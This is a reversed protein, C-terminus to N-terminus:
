PSIGSREALAGAALVSGVLCALGALGQVLAPVIAQGLGVRRATRHMRWPLFGISMAAVWGLALVRAAGTGLLGGLLFLGLLPVIWYAVWRKAERATCADALAPQVGVFRGLVARHCALAGLIAAALSAARLATWPAASYPGICLSRSGVTWVAHAAHAGHADFASLTMLARTPEDGTAAPYWAIFSGFWTFGLLAAAAGLSTLLWPLRSRDDQPFAHAEASM